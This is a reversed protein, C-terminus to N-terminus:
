NDNTTSEKRQQGLKLNHRMRRGTARRHARRTAIFRDFDHSKLAFFHGPRGSLNNIYRKLVRSSRMNPPLAKLIDRIAKRSPMGPQDAIRSSLAWCGVVEGPEIAGRAADVVAAVVDNHERIHDTKCRPDNARAVPRPNAPHRDWKALAEADAGDVPLGAAQHALARQWSGVPHCPWVTLDLGDM